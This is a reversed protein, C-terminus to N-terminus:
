KRKSRSGKSGVLVRRARRFQAYRLVEEFDQDDLGGTASTLAKVRQDEAPQDPFFITIPVGFSRAILDLDAPTPKYTGTEWRSLTNPAVDLEKALAEQSMEGRLQRITKGITIYLDSM